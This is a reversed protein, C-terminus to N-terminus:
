INFALKVLVAPKIRKIHDLFISKASVGESESASLLYGCVVCGTTRQPLLHLEPAYHCRQAVCVTGEHNKPPEQSAGRAERGLCNTLRPIRRQTVPTVLAFLCSWAKSPTSRLSHRRPSLTTTESQRVLIFTLTINRNYLKSAFSPPPISRM